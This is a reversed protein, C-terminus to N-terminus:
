RNQRVFYILPKIEVLYPKPKSFNLGGKETKREKEEKESKKEGERGATRGGKGEKWM